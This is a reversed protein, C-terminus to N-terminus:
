FHGDSPLKLICYRQKQQAFLLININLSNIRCTYSKEPELPFRLSLFCVPLMKNQSVTDHVLSHKERVRRTMSPTWTDASTVRWTPTSAPLPPSSLWVSPWWSGAESWATTAFTRQPKAACSSTSSTVCAKTVGGVCWWRLSLCLWSLQQSFECCSTTCHTYKM